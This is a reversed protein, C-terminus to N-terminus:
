NNFISFHSQRSMMKLSLNRNSSQQRRSLIPSTSFKWASLQNHITTNIPLFDETIYAAVAAVAALQFRRTNVKGPNKIKM